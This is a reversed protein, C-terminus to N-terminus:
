YYRLQSSKRKSRNSKILCALTLAIVVPFILSIWRAYKLSPLLTKITMENTCIAKNKGQLCVKKVVNGFCLLVSACVSGLYTLDSIKGGLFNEYHSTGVFSVISLSLFLIFTVVHVIIGLVLVRPGMLGLLGSVILAVALVIGLIAVPLITQFGYAIALYGACGGVGLGLLISLIAPFKLLM